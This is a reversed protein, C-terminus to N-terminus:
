DGGGCVFELKVCAFLLDVEEQVGNEASGRGQHAPLHLRGSHRRPHGDPCIVPDSRQSACSPYLCPHSLYIARPSKPSSLLGPLLRHAITHRLIVCLWHQLQVRSYREEPRHDPTVVATVRLHKMTQTSVAPTLLALPPTISFPLATNASECCHWLTATQQWNCLCLTGIIYM